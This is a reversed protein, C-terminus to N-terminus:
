DPIILQSHVNPPLDDLDGIAIAVLVGAASFMTFAVASIRMSTVMWCIGREGPSLLMQTIALMAFAVTYTASALALASFLLNFRRKTLNILQPEKAFSYGFALTQVVGAACLYNQYTELREAISIHDKRSVQGPNVLMATLTMVLFCLVQALM